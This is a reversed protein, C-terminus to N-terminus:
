SVETKEYYLWTPIKNQVYSIVLFFIGLRWESFLKIVGTIAYVISIFDLIYIGFASTFSIPKILKM